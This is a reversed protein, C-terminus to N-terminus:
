AAAPLRGEPIPPHSYDSDYSAQSVEVKFIVTVTESGCNCFKTIQVIGPKPTVVWDM